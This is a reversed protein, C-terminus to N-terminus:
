TGAVLEVLQIFPLLALSALSVGLDPPTDELRCTKVIVSQWQAATLGDYSSTMTIVNQITM